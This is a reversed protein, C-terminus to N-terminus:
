PVSFWSSRGKFLLKGVLAHRPVVEGCEAEGIRDAEGSLECIRRRQRSFWAVCSGLGRELVGRGLGFGCPSARSNIVQFRRPLTLSTTPADAAHGALDDALPVGPSITRRTRGERRSSASISSAVALSFHGPLILNPSPEPQTSGVKAATLQGV